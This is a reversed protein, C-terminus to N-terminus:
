GWEMEEIVLQRTAGGALLGVLHLSIDIGASVGM